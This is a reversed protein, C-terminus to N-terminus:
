RPFELGYVREMQEISPMPGFVRIMEQCHPCDDRSGPHLTDNHRLEWAEPTDLREVEVTM